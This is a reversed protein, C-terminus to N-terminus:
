YANKNILGHVPTMFLIKLDLWFSWNAIYWHDCQVRAQMLAPDSTEGRLGNVQAWGTLGPKVQNRGAYHDVIQEYARNHAIAHPRPGVLSMEGALINILQPLEDLSSRRLVRGVRTVRPDHATAQLLKPGNEMVKMSRFKWITITKGNIGHRHQRFFVPGDSELKIAAAIVAMLPSLIILLLAALSKDVAVKAIYGWDRIARRHALSLVADPIEVPADCPSVVRCAKPVRNCIWIDTSNEALKTVIEATRSAQADPLLVIVDDVSGDKIAEVLDGLPGTIFPQVDVASRGIQREDYLGAYDVGSRLMAARVELAFPSAGYLAVRRRRYKAFGMSRLASISGNGSIATLLSVLLIFGIIKGPHASAFERAEKQLVVSALTASVIPFQLHLALAGLDGVRARRVHLLGFCSIVFTGLLIQPAISLFDGELLDLQGAAMLVVWTLLATLSITTLGILDCHINQWNVSPIHNTLRPRSRRIGGTSVSNASVNWTIQRSNRANNIRAATTM